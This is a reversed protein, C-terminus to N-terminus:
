GLEAIGDMRSLKIFQKVQLPHGLPQYGLSKLLHSFFCSTYLALSSRLSGWNPNNAEGALCHITQKFIMGAIV